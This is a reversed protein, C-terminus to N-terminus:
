ASAGDEGKFDDRAMWQALVQPEDLDTADLVFMAPPRAGEPTTVAIRRGESEFMMSTHLVGDWKDADEGAWSGIEVPM